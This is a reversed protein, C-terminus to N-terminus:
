EASGGYLDYISMQGPIQGDLLARTRRAAIVAEEGTLEDIEFEIAVYFRGSRIPKYSVVIDTHDEIEKISRDLVARRFTKYDKYKEKGYKDKGIGLYTRLDDIAITTKKKWAHSKFLEYLMIAYSSKLILINYLNYKTFRESLNRLYPMVKKPIDVEITGSNRQIDPTTIWRFQLEGEGYDLWFKYDSLRDLAHKVNSYNGGSDYTIGAVKCFQRIEFRITYNDEEVLDTVPKIKSLIYCLVKQETVTLEFKRRTINQIVRNDKWIEYGRARDIEYKENLATM